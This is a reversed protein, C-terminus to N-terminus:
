RVGEAAAMLDTFDALFSADSSVCVNRLEFFSILKLSFSTAEFYSSQMTNGDSFPSKETFPLHQMASCLLANHLVRSPM